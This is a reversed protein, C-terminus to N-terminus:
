FQRSCKYLSGYINRSLSFIIKLAGVRAKDFKNIILDLIIIYYCNNCYIIFETIISREFNVVKFIYNIKLYRHFAHRRSIIDLTCLTVYPQVDFSFKGLEKRLKEVM